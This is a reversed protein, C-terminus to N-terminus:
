FFDFFSFGSVGGENFDYKLLGMLLSMEREAADSEPEGTRTYSFVLPLSLHRAQPGRKHHYLRWFLRTERTGDPFVKFRFFEFFPRYIKKYDSDADGWGHSLLYFGFEDERGHEVTLLPWLTTSKETVNEEIYHTTYHWLFPAAISYSREKGPHSRDHTKWILPWPIRHHVVHRGQDRGGPYRTVRWFFPFFKWEDIDKTYQRRILSFFLSWQKYGEEWRTDTRRNYFLIQRRSAITEGEEDKTQLSSFFPHFAFYDHRRPKGEVTKWKEHGWRFFPWMLYRHQHTNKEDKRVYFPWLRWTEIDGDPTSGYSFFPWLLDYREYDGKKFNSYLPFLVWTFEDGLLDYAKGGVPVVGAYAGYEPKQGWLVFPFLWGHSTIDESFFDVTQAHQFVPWLRYLKGRGERLSVLGLPWLFKLRMEQEDSKSEYNGLPRLAVYRRNESRRTEIFPYLIERKDIEHGAEDVFTEHHHVPWLNGANNACGGLFGISLM